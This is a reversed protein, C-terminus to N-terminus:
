SCVASSSASESWFSTLWLLADRFFGGLEDNLKLGLPWETLWRVNAQVADVAYAQLAAGLRAGLVDANELLIAVVASGIIVDNAILWLM